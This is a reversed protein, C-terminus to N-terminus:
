EKRAKLYLAKATNTIVEIKEVRFGADEVLRVLDEPSYNRYYSPPLGFKQFYRFALEMKEFFSTGYDTYSVVLLIGPVKLIRHSEKVAKLPHEITHIVNAMLVADYRLSPFSPAECDEKQVTVNHVDKLQIRAAELMHDSLDTAIIRTAQEAVVKTFYGTGCGFEVVEGLGQEQRLKEAIAERLSRGVVYEADRDYSLSYNDWYREKKAAMM